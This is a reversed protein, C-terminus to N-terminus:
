GDEARAETTEEADEESRVLVPSRLVLLFTTLVVPLAGRLPTMPVSLSLLMRRRSLDEDDGIPHFMSSFSPPVRDRAIDVKRRFILVTPSSAPDGSEGLPIRAHM